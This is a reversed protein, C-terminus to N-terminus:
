NSFGGAAQAWQQASKIDAPTNINLFCGAPYQQMDVGVAGQKMLWYQVRREGNLVDHKLTPLVSRQILLCLPYSRQHQMFFAPVRSQQQSAIWLQTFLEPPVFPTDVPLVALWPTPCSELMAWLGALPGQFPDLQSPDSVVQGYSSYRDVHRNASILLPAVSIAQLTHAAWEVLPRQQLLVLGKDIPGLSQLRRALGGTLIGGTVSNQM